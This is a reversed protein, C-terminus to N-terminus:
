SLVQRPPPPRWACVLDVFRRELDRGHVVLHIRAHRLQHVLDRPMRRAEHQQAVGHRQHTSARIERTPPPSLPQHSSPLRRPPCRHWVHQDVRQRHRRIRIQPHLIRARQLLKSIRRLHALHNLNCLRLLQLVDLLLETPLGSSLPSQPTHVFAFTFLNLPPSSVFSISSTVLQPYPNFKAVSMSSVKSRESTTSVWHSPPEWLTSTSM